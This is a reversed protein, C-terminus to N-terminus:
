DTLVEITSTQRQEALWDYLAKRQLTLRADPTLRREARDLVKVIHYGIESEIIDSVGGVPLNFAAEEVPAILLYGRPVWGLYGGATPDYLFAVETFDRGSNLSVLANEAGEETYAFVQRLEVQEAIEPVSDAIVERQQAALMELRLAYILDAESYGWKVMWAELDIEAALQDMREQVNEDTVIVGGERAAQALLTLDVVDKLVTARADTEDIDTNGLTEQALMYRALESEFWVLPVREGNVVAAAPVLTATPSDATVTLTAAIETPTESVTPAVQSSCASVSMVLVVLWVGPNSLVKLARFMAEM